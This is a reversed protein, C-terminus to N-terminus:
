GGGLLARPESDGQQAERDRRHGPDGRWGQWQRNVSTPPPRRLDGDPLCSPRGTAPEELSVPSGSGPSGRRGCICIGRLVFSGSAVYAGDPWACREYSTGASELRPAHADEPPFQSSPRVMQTVTYPPVRCGAARGRLTLRRRGPFVSRARCVRSACRAHAITTSDCVRHSRSRTAANRAALPNRCPRVAATTGGHGAYATQGTGQGSQM